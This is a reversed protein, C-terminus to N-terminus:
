KVLTLTRASLVPLPQWPPVTTQAVTHWQGDNGCIMSATTKAIYKGNVYTYTHVTNIDGPEGGGGCTVKSGGGSNPAAGAHDITPTLLGVALTALVAVLAGRGKAAGTM